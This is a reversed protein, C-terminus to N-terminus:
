PPDRAPCWSPRAHPEQSVGADGPPGRRRAKWEQTRNFWYGVVPEGHVLARAANPGPWELPSAVLQEKTGTGLVYKLRQRQAEPEDSVILAGEATPGSPGSDRGLTPV